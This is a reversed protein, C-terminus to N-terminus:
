ATATFHVVGSDCEDRTGNAMILTDHFRWTGTIKRRNKALTLRTSDSSSVTTGDSGPV